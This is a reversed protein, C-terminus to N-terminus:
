ESIGFRSQLEATHEESRLIRQKTLRFEARGTVLDIRRSFEVSVLVNASEGRIIFPLLGASRFLDDGRVVRGFLSDIAASAVHGLDFAKVIPRRLVADNRGM